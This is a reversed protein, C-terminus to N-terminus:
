APAFAARGAAVEADGLARLGADARILYAVLADLAEETPAGGGVYANRRLTAALAAGDGADLAGDLDRGRAYFNQALRKVYKGVSLDGVGIERLAGDMDAFMLDFLEQAVARSDEDARLRRMVLAAHLAVMEFRGEPTDPVGLDRYFRESRAQEVLRVYLAHARRHRGARGRRFPWFGRSGDPTAQAGDRARPVEATPRM